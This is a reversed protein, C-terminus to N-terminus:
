RGRGTGFAFQQVHHPQNLDDATTVQSVFVLAVAHGSDASVVSTATVTATSSTHRGTAAPVVVDTGLKDFYTAFDGTLHSHARALDATVTDPKYSLVAAAADAAAPGVERDAATLVRLRWVRPENNAGTADTVRSTAAVLVKADDGSISEIGAASVTGTTSVHAQKM